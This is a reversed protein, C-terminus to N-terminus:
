DTGRGYGMGDSRGEDDGDGGYGRGRCRLQREECRVAVVASSRSSTACIGCSAVVSCLIILSRTKLVSFLAHSLNLLSLAEHRPPIPHIVSASQM